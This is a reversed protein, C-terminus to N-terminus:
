MMLDIANSLRTTEEGVCCVLVRSMVVSELGGSMRGVGTEILVMLTVLFLQLRRWTQFM